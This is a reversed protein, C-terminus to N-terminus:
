LVEGTDLDNIASIAWMIAFSKITSPNREALVKFYKIFPKANIRDWERAFIVERDSVIVHERISKLENYLEISNPNTTNDFYDQIAAMYRCIEPTLAVLDRAEQDSIGKAIVFKHRHITKKFDAKSLFIEFKRTGYLGGLTADYEFVVNYPM